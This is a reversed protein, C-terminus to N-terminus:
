PSPVRELLREVLADVTWGEREADLSPLLRHRLVDPALDAVDDPLVHDRGSLAAHARAARALVIGARPSAGLEIRGALEPVGFSEPARTARVLRVLYDRVAASVHVGDVAVRAARLDGIEIPAPPPGATHAGDLVRDVVEREEAAAPYDVVLQFMFRDLQAEALPYTGQQDIPNQTALVLFPDPLPLTHGGLTVQREEMAELLASQVKPPARNLEDALVVHAFIPGRAVAFAERERQWVMGGLLDAPLLDPTFQIRKFSAEFSTALARAMRTKALGPVGELLVHGGALVAVLLRHLVAEQGVIERSLSVRVEDSLRAIASTTSAHVPNM